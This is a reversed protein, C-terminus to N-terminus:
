DFGSFVAFEGVSARETELRNVAADPDAYGLAMGCFLMENAPIGVVEVVTKHWQAWAEQPCTDLGFERALLMINELFMGLDAFQGVGMQRDITFLLGVPADFFSYNRAAQRLRGERDGRGIGVIDYLDFGVKRRWGVYPETLHPPYIPYETGEGQPNRALGEMVASVLTKLPTGTLVYVKWPQLNGGSPARRALDLIRYVVKQPVPKALFARISRRTLIAESVNM